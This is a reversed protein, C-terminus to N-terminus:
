ETRGIRQGSARLLVDGSQPSRVRVIVDVVSDTPWKPGGHAIRRIRYPPAQYVDQDAVPAERADGGFVVYVRDVDLERDADQLDTAGVYMVAALPRGDPPSVPMFDRWLEAELVYPRGDIDVQEPVALLVDRPVSSPPWDSAVDAPDRCACLLAAILVWALRAGRSSGPGGRRAWASEVHVAM